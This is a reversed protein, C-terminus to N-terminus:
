KKGQENIARYFDLYVANKLPGVGYGADIREKAARSAIDRPCL